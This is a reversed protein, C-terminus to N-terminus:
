IQVNETTHAYVKPEECSYCCCLMLAKKSCFRDFDLGAVAYYHTKSASDTVAHRRAM